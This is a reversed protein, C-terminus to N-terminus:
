SYTRFYKQCLINLITNGGIDTGALLVSKDSGFFKDWVNVSTSSSNSVLLLESFRSSFGTIVLSTAVEQGLVSFWCNNWPISVGVLFFDTGYIGIRGDM